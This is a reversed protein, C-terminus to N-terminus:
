PWIYHLAMYTEDGKEISFDRVNHSDITSRLLPKTVKRLGASYSMVAM